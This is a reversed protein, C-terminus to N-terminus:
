LWDFDEIPNFRASRSLLKGGVIATSNALGLVSGDKPAAAVANMGTVGGDGAVNLVEVPSELIRTLTDAVLRGIRDASGGAAAPVILKIPSAPSTPPADAARARTAATAALLVLFSRRSCRRAGSRGHM